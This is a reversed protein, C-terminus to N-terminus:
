SMLWWLFEEVSKTSNFRLREVRELEGAAQASSPGSTKERQLQSNQLLSLLLRGSHGKQGRWRGDLVVVRPNLCILEELANQAPLGEGETELKWQVRVPTQWKCPSKVFTVTQTNKMLLRAGSVGWSSLSFWRRPLDPSVNKTDAFTAAQHCIFTM